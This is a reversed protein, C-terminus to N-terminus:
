IDYVDEIGENRFWNIELCKKLQLKARQLMKWYNSSTIGLDQCIETGSKEEMYKFHIASFWKEPLNKMCKQFVENFKNNDLLHSDQNKDPREDSRWSGNSDFFTDLIDKGDQNLSSQYVLLQRFKRRHFDIIKNNMISFLWTKVKSENKFNDVSKFAALFTEQVLDEASERDNTRHIAWKFLDNAYLAVWEKILNESTNERGM